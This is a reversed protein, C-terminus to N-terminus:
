ISIKKISVSQYLDNPSVCIFFNSKIEELHEQMSFVYTNDM